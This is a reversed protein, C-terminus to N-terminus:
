FNIFGRNIKVVIRANELCVHYSSTGSHYNDVKVVVRVNELCVHHSSTWSDEALASKQVINFKLEVGHEKFRAKLSRRTEGIYVKGCSCPIAYVGKHLIPDIQNKASDLMTRITNIPSFAM